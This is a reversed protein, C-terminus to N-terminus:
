YYQVFKSIPTDLMSRLQFQSENAVMLNEEQAIQHVYKMVKILECDKKSGYYSAIPIGNSLNTAFSFVHNDIILTRSLDIGKLVSLDKYLSEQGKHTITQAHQRFFRHQILTGSPDIKDIIPNAYWDYGATFVAVEYDTNAARLCEHLYPRVFIGQDFMGYDSTPSEMQVWEDPEAEIYHGLM